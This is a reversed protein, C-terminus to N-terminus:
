PWIVLKALPKQSSSAHIVEPISYKIVQALGEFEGEEWTVDVLNLVLRLCCINLLTCNNSPLTGVLRSSRTVVYLYLQALFDGLGVNSM